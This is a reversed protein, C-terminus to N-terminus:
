RRRAGCGRRRAVAAREDPHRHAISRDGAPPGSSRSAPPACPTSAIGSQARGVRHEWRCGADGRAAPSVAGGFPRRFAPRRVGRPPRELPHEMRFRRRRPPLHRDRAHGRRILEALCMPGTAVDFVV